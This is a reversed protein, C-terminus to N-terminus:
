VTSFKYKQMLFIERQEEECVTNMESNKFATVTKENDVKLDSQQM